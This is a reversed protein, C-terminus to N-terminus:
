NLQRDPSKALSAAGRTQQGDMMGRRWLVVLFLIMLLWPCNAWPGWVNSLANTSNGYYWGQGKEIFGHSITDYFVFLFLSSAATIAAYWGPASVALFPAFWIMYQACAGPALVFFIMWAWALTDFLELGSKARRRWALVLISGIITFKLFSMITKQQWTLKIFSIQHLPAWHTARAWYTVGWIGWYSSYGLVNHLFVDPCGILAVSWGALCTAIVTVAFPFAKGRHLWFFFFVPSFLVPIIKINCALGLFLGCLAAQESLACTSLCTYAALFLFLVMMADFNGHYGNVMFSVPSLAFLCVAWLPPRGTRRWLRWLLLVTFLDAMIVPFKLCFPFAFALTVHGAVTYAIAFYSAILPTHNFIPAHRYTHILGNKLIWRAYSHHLAVDNTGITTAACWLKLVLAIGACLWVLLDTQFTAETKKM